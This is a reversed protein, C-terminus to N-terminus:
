RRPALQCELTAVDCGTFAPALHPPSAPDFIGLDVRGVERYGLRAYWAALMDTHPDAPCPVLVELRMATAGARAAHEEVYAVLARGLGTRGLRPDVGLAGFWGTRADALRTWVAGALAGDVRALVLHEREIMAATEDPNTRPFADRWLRREGAEYARNVVDCIGEVLARDRAAAAALHRIEVAM